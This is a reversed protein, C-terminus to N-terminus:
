IELANQALWPQPRGLYDRQQRSKNRTETPRGTKGVADERM